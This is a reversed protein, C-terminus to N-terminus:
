RNVIHGKRCSCVRGGRGRLILVLGHFLVEFFQKCLRQQVQLTVTHQRGHGFGRHLDLACFRGFVSFERGVDGHDQGLSRAPRRTFQGLRDDIAHRARPLDGPELYGARAEDVEVQMAAGQGTDDPVGQALALLVAVPQLAGAVADGHLEDGGVRGTRQVDAMAAARRVARAQGADESGGAVAHLTLIVDVVVAALHVDQGDADPQAVQLQAAFADTERVVAVAAVVNVVDRADNAHFVAVAAPKRPAFQLVAQRQRRVFAAVTFKVEIRQDLSGAFQQLRVTVPHKEVHRQVVDQGVDLLVQRFEAHVEVHPEGLEFQFLAARHLAGDLAQALVPVQVDLVAGGPEAGGREAVLFIANHDALVAAGRIERGVDRIKQVFQLATEVPRDVHEPRVMMAVHRAHAGGRDTEALIRVLELDHQQLECHQKAEALLHLHGGARPLEYRQALQAVLHARVGGAEKVDHAGVVLVQIEVEVQGLRAGAIVRDVVDLIGVGADAAHEAVELLHVLAVVRGDSLCRQVQQGLLVFHRQHSGDATERFADVHRRAHVRRVQERVVEVRQRGVQMRVVVRVLEQNGLLVQAVGPQIHSSVPM